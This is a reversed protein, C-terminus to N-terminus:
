KGATHWASIERGILKFFRENHPQYIECLRERCSDSMRLDMSSPLLRDIGQWFRDLQPFSYNGILTAKSTLGKNVSNKVRSSLNLSSVGIFQFIEELTRQPNQYIDDELILIKIQNKDFYEFFSELNDAYYGNGLLRTHNRPDSLEGFLIDEIMKSPQIRRRYMDQRVASFLRDIPDRFAFILKVNPLDNRIRKAAGPAFKNFNYKSHIALYSPSKEGIIQNKRADLFNSEYWNLGRAYNEKGAFFHLESRALYIDPHLALRRALWSTGGKQAGGILFNPLKV